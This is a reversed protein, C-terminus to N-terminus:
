RAKAAAALAAGRAARVQDEARSADRAEKEARLREYVAQDIADPDGSGRATREYMRAAHLAEVAAATRKLALELMPDLKRPPAEKILEKGVSAEKQTGM